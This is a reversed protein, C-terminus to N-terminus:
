AVITRTSKFWNMTNHQGYDRKRRARIGVGEVIAMKQQPTLGYMLVVEMTVLLHTEWATQGCFTTFMFLRRTEYAELDGCGRGSVQKLYRRRHEQFPFCRSRMEYGEENGKM